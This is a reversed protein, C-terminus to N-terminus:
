LGVTQSRSQEDRKQRRERKETRIIKNLKGREKKLVLQTRYEDYVDLFGDYLHNGDVTDFDYRDDNAIAFLHGIRDEPLPHTNSTIRTQYLVRDTFYFLDFFRMYMVPALYTYEELVKDQGGLRSQDIIMKLVIHYAVADAEFEEKRRDSFKRGASNFYSHAVEHALSFIVVTWYCASALNMIQVDGHIIQLLAENSEADPIDGLICVDNMIFLLYLFCNGYTELNYFEKSWKFVVLFFSMMSSEFLEDIHVFQDREEDMIVYSNISRQYRNSLAIQEGYYGYERGFYEKVMRFMQDINYRQENERLQEETLGSSRYYKLMTEIGNKEDKTSIGGFRLIEYDDPRLFFKANDNVSM